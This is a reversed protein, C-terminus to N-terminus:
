ISDAELLPPSAWPNLQFDRTYLMKSRQMTVSWGRRGQDDLRACSTFPGLGRNDFCAAKWCVETNGIQKGVVRDLQWRNPGRTTRKAV